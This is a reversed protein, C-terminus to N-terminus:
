KIHTQTDIWNSITKVSVSRFLNSLYHIPTTQGGANGVPTYQEFNIDDDDDHIIYINVWCEVNMRLYDRKCNM